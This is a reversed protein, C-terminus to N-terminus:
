GRDFDFLVESCDECEVAVNAENGYIAIDIKHGYHESLDNYNQASM